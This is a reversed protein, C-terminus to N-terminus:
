RMNKYVAPSVGKHEKFVKSFYSLSNFGCVTAVESLSRRGGDILKAAERIRITNLYTVVSIGLEKSFTRCLHYKSVYVADAIEAIDKIEAYRENIYRVAGNIVTNFRSKKIYHNESNKLTFLIQFLLGALIAGDKECRHERYLTFKNFLAGFLKIIGSKEEDEARFVTPCELSMTEIIEPTFFRTLFENSFSVLTRTGGKGGTRHMLNKPVFVVDGEDIEYFDEGIFYEREGALQCYLEYTDHYHMFPMTHKSTACEVTFDDTKHFFVQPMCCGGTKQNANVNYNLEDCFDVTYHVFVTTSGTCINVLITNKLFM